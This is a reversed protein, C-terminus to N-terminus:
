RRTRGFLHQICAGGNWPWGLLWLRVPNRHYARLLAGQDQDGQWEERWASFLQATRAKAFWFIGGQMQIPTFGIQGITQRREEESVHWLINEGQNDSPVIVMDWGDDLIEFGVSVDAHARTDVDMYLTNDFPTLRDVNLKAWRAGKGPEHWELWQTGEVPEEAIVAVPLDTRLADLAYRLEDRAKDGYAVYVIGNM